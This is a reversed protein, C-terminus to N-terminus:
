EPASHNSRITTVPSAPWPTGDTTRYSRPNGHNAQKPLDAEPVKARGPAAREEDDAADRGADRQDDRDVDDVGADERVEALGDLQHRAGGLEFHREADALDAERLLRDVDNAGIGVDGGADWEHAAAYRERVRGTFHQLHEAHVEGGLFVQLPIVERRGTSAVRECREGVTVRHEERLTKRRLVAELEAIPQSERRRFADVREGHAAEQIRAPEARREAAVDRQHIQRGRLQHEGLVPPDVLDVDHQAVAGVDPRRLRPQLRQQRRRQADCSGLLPALLVFPHQRRKLRHQRPEAREAQDRADEDDVVRGRRSRDCARSRDGLQAEDAGIAAREEPQQHDLRRYEAEHARREADGDADRQRTQQRPRHRLRHSDDELQPKRDLPQADIRPQLRHDRRRADDDRQEGRIKRCLAHGRHVWEVDHPRVRRRQRRRWWRRAQDSPPQHEHDDADDRERSSSWKAEIAQPLKPEVSQFAATITIAIGITSSADRSRSRTRGRINPAAPVTAAPLM